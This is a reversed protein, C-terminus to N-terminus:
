YFDLNYFVYNRTEILNKYFNIDSRGNNFQNTLYYYQKLTDFIVKTHKIFFSSDGAGIFKHIPEGFNDLIIFTPYSNVNYRDVFNRIFPRLSITAEDDNKTEDIQLKINVFNANFFDGINKQTFIEEQVKKCPGCWTTYCDIFIYKDEKQAQKVIDSWNTIKHIFKVGVDEKKQAMLLTPLLLLVAILKKM